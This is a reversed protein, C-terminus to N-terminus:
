GKRSPRRTDPSPTADGGFLAALAAQQEDADRAIQAQLESAGAIVAPDAAMVAVHKEIAERTAETVSVGTLRAM